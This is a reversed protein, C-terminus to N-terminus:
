LLCTIWGRPGLRHAVSPGRPRLVNLPVPPTEAMRPSPESEARKSSFLAHGRQTLLYCLQLISNLVLNLSVFELSYILLSIQIILISSFRMYFNSQLTLLM